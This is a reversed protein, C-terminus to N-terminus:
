KCGTHISANSKTKEDILSINGPQYNTIAIALMNFRMPISKETGM